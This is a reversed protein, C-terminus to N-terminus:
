LLSIQKLRTRKLRPKHKHLAEAFTVSAERAEGFKLITAATINGENVDITVQLKAKQPTGTNIANTALKILRKRESEVLYSTQAWFARGTGKIYARQKEFDYKTVNYEQDVFFTTHPTEIPDEPYIEKLREGSVSSGNGISVTDKDEMVQSLKKPTRNNKTIKNHAPKIIPDIGARVQEISVDLEKLRVATKSEIDAVVIDRYADIGHVAVWGISLTLTSYMIAKLVNMKQETTFDKSYELIKNVSKLVLKISGKELKFKVILNPYLHLDKLAINLGTCDNVIALFDRQFADVIGAIRYDVLTHDEWSNGSIIMTFTLDGSYVIDKYPIGAADLATVYLLDEPTKVEIIGLSM